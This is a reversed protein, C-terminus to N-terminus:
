KFFERRPGGHDLAQEGSFEVSLMMKSNFRRRRMASLTTALLKSRQIVITNTGMIDSTVLNCAAHLIGNYKDPNLNESNYLGFIFCDDNCSSSKFLMALNCLSNDCPNVISYSM